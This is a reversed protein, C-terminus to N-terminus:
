KLIKKIKIRNSYMKDDVSEVMDNNYDLIANHKDLENGNLVSINHLEKLVNSINDLKSIKDNQSHELTNDVRLQVIKSKLTLLKLVSKAKNKIPHKNFKKYVKGFTSRIYDLHWSAVDMEHDISQVNSTTSNLKATQSNLNNAIECGQSKAVELEKLIDDLLKNCQENDEISKNKKLDM